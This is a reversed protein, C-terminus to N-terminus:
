SGRIVSAATSPLRVRDRSASCSPFLAPPRCASSKPTFDSLTAGLAPSPVAAATWTILVARRSPNQCLALVGRMTERCSPQWRLRSCNSGAASCSPSPLPCPSAAVVADSPIVSCRAPKPAARRAKCGETPYLGASEACLLWPIFVRTLGEGCRSLFGCGPALIRVNM